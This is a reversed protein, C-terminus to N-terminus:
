AALDVKLQKWSITGQHDLDELIARADRTDIADELSELGDRLAEWEDIPIQVAVKRGHDDIVYQISMNERRKDIGQLFITEALAEVKISEEM